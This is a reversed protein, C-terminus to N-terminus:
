DVKERYNSKSQFFLAVHHRDAAGRRPTKSDIINCLDGITNYHPCKKDYIISQPKSKTETQMTHQYLGIRQKPVIFLNNKLKKLM